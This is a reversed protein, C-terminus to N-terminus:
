GYAEPTFVCGLFQELESYRTYMADETV